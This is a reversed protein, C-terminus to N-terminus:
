GGRSSLVNDLDAIASESEAGFRRSSSNAVGDLEMEVGHRVGDGLAAESRRAFREVGCAEEATGNCHRASDAAGDEGHRNLILGGDPKVASGSVM